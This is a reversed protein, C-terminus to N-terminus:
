EADRLLDQLRAQDAPTFEHIRGRLEELLERAAATQNRARYLEASLLKMQLDDPRVSLVQQIDSEAEDLRGTRLYLEGRTSLLLPDDPKMATSFSASGFLSQFLSCLASVMFTFM